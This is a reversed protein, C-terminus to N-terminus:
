YYIKEYNKIEQQVEQLFKREKECYKGLSTNLDTFPLVTMMEETAVLACRKAEEHRSAINNVGAFSGNNPLLYYFRNILHNVTEKATM